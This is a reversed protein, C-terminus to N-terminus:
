SLICLHFARCVNENWVGVFRGTGRTYVNGYWCADVSYVTVNAITTIPILTSRTFITLGM